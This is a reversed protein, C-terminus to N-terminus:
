GYWAPATLWTRAVRKLARRAARAPRRHHFLGYVTPGAGSVDARFAGLALLEEALVRMMILQGPTSPVSTSREDSRTDITVYRLFRELASTKM